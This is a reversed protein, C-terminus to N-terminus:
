IRPRYAPTPQKMKLSTIQQHQGMVENRNRTAQVQIEEIPSFRQHVQSISSHCHVIFLLPAQNSDAVNMEAM